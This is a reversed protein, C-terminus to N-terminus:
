RDGDPHSLLYDLTIQDVEPQSLDVSCEFEEISIDKFVPMNSLAEGILKRSEHVSKLDPDILRFKIRFVYSKLEKLKTM